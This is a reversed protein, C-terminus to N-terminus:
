FIPIGELYERVEQEPRVVRQCHHVVPLQVKELIAVSCGRYESSHADLCSGSHDRRGFAGDKLALAHGDISVGVLASVCGDSTSAKHGSHDIPGHARKYKDYVVLCKRHGQVRM